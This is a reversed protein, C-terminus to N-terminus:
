LSNNFVDHVRVTRIGHRHITNHWSFTKYKSGIFSHFNINRNYFHLTMFELVFTSDITGIGRPHFINYRRYISHELCRGVAFNCETVTQNIIAYHPHDNQNIEPSAQFYHIM